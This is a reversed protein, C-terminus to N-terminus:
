MDLLFPCDKEVYIDCMVQRLSFSDKEVYIDSM